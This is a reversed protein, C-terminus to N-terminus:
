FYAAIITGVSAEPKNLIGQFIENLHPSVHRAVLAALVWAGMTLTEYVGGRVFAWVTSVFLVSIYIYDLLTLDIM